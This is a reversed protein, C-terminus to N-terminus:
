PWQTEQDLPYVPRSLGQWPINQLDPTTLGPANVEFINADKVLHEFGARFHGRSKVVFSSAKRPDLGIDELLDAGWMQERVSVVAIDIGPLSLWATKGLNVPANALVGLRAIFRGETLKRVTARVTMRESFPSTEDRNLRADFTAGVGREWAEEVLAPDYFLGLQVNQAGSELLAKLIWLTNGRGGGGPNDAIDALIIPGDARDDARLALQAAEALSKTARRYRRRDQWARSALRGAAQDAAEQGSRAYALIAMGNYGTDSFAFGALASATAITEGIEAEVANMLDGYPEGPATLQTVQPTVLPLRVFSKAFRKGEFLENMLLAADASRACHDVHPNTRMAILADTQAVMEESINGHLDLTAVIPVAPGVIERVARFYAGDMDALETTIGAGHGYIYVGDLPLAATLRERIEALLELFYGHDCPGGAKGDALLIPVAEWKRLRSMAPGFGFVDANALFPAMDEGVLLGHNIFDDHGTVPAFRNSELEIGLIAIRKPLDAPPM